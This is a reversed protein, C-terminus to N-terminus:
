SSGAGAASGTSASSDGSSSSSAVGSSLTEAMCASSSLTNVSSSSSFGSACRSSSSSSMSAASRAASDSRMAPCNAYVFACACHVYLGALENSFDGALEVRFFEKRQVQALRLHLEARRRVIRVRERGIRRDPADAEVQRVVLPAAEPQVEVALQRQPAALALAIEQRQVVEVGLRQADRPHVDRQAGGGRPQENDVPAAGVARPDVP